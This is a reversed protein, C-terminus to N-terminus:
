DEAVERLIKWRGEERLLELRKVVTDRYTNSWYSQRFKIWGWDEAATRSQQFILSLKIFQPRTIRSRRQKEWDGRALGRPPRFEHSYFALYDEVRQDAWAQAWAQAMEVMDAALPVGADTEADLAGGTSYTGRARWRDQILRLVEQEVHENEPVLRDVLVYIDEASTTEELSSRALDMIGLPDVREHPVEIEVSYGPLVTFESAVKLVSALEEVEVVEGRSVVVRQGRNADDTLMYFVEGVDGLRIGAALGADLRAFEGDIALITAVIRVLAIATIGHEGGM